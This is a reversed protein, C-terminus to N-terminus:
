VDRCLPLLFRYGFELIDEEMARLMSKVASRRAFCAPARNLDFIRITDAARLQDTAPAAPNPHLEGSDSQYLFYRAFDFDPEDPRLLTAEWDDQKAHNCAACSLFLNEWQCVLPYFEVRSKPRFHDICEPGVHQFPYADCYSCRGATMEHLAQRAIAGLSTGERQPWQFRFNPNAQRNKAYKEAVESEYRRLLSPAEWRQCTTM